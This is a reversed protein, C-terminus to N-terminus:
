FKLKALFSLPVLVVGRDEITSNWQQIQKLTIPYAQAVGIAYGNRQATQELTALRAQISIETLEEDLWIDASLSALDNRKTDTPAAPNNNRQMLMLVGRKALEDTIPKLIEANVTVVENMPAVMGVYGQFRSMAWQLYKTNDAATRGLLISYPGPDEAPYATTQMPLDIYMEHGSKRSAISWSNVQLAYPSFSLSVHDDLALAMDTAERSQGLGTIVIAVLPTENQRRFQKMYYQWPKLGSSAIRPLSIDGLKEVLDPNVEAIPSSVTKAKVNNIISEDLDEEGAPLSEKPKEAHPTEEEAAAQQGVVKGDAVTIIFRKGTKLADETESAGSMWLLTVMLVAWAACLAIAIKQILASYQLLQKPLM